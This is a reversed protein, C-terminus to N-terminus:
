RRFPTASLAKLSKSDCETPELDLVAELFRRTRLDLRRGSRQVFAALARDDVEKRLALVAEWDGETLIRGIVFDEHLELDLTEPDVDWLLRDISQVLQKTLPM